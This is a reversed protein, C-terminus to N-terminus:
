AGPQPGELAVVQISPPAEIRSRSRREQLIFQRQRARETEIWGRGEGAVAQLIRLGEGIGSSEIDISLLSDPDEFEGKVLARARNAGILIKLEREHLQLSLAHALAFDRPGHHPVRDLDVVTRRNDGYRIGIEVVSASVIVDYRFNDTRPILHSGDAFDLKVAYVRVGNETLLFIRLNYSSYRTPGFPVRASLADEAPETIAFHAIVDQHPLRLAKMAEIRLWSLDAALWQAMETDEPRDSLWEVWEAHTRLARQFAEEARRRREADYSRGIALEIVSPLALWLGGAVALSAFLIGFAGGLGTPTGGFVGTAGFLVLGVAVGLRAGAENSLGFEPDQLLGTEMHGAQTKALHEALWRLEGPQTTGNCYLLTVNLAMTARFHENAALWQGPAFRTPTHAEFADSLLRWFVRNFAAQRHDMRTRRPDDAIGRLETRRDNMRKARLALARGFYVVLASGAVSAAVLAISSRPSPHALIVLLATVASISFGGVARGKAGPKASYPVATPMRPPLQDHIFFKPVRRERDGVRRLREVHDSHQVWLREFVAGSVIRDLHLLIDNRIDPDLRQAQLLIQDIGTQDLGSAQSLVTAELLSRVVEMGRSWRDASEYDTAEVCYKLQNAEEGSLDIDSRGSLIALAWHLLLQNSRLGDEHAAALSEAARRPLNASLLEIGVELKREPGDSSVQQYLNVNHIVGGQNAIGISQDGRPGTQM